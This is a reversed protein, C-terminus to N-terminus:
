VERQFWFDGDNGGSPTSTSVTYAAGNWELSDSVQSAWKIGTTEASDAVLVQNNTGVTKPVIDNGDTVLINGKTVSLGAIDNLRPQTSNYVSSGNIQLGSSHDLTLTQSYSIINGATGTPGVKFNISGNAGETTFLVSAAGDGSVVYKEGASYYSNSRLALSSGGDDWSLRKKASDDIEIRGAGAQLKLPTANSLTLISSGTDDADSRLFQSPLYKTGDDLVDDYLKGAALVDWTSGNYTYIQNKTTNYFSMGTQLNVSPATTGSSNSMITKDNDLIATRSSSITQTGPIETYSQM